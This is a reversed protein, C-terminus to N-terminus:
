YITITADLQNNKNNYWRHVTMCVDYREPLVYLVKSKLHRAFMYHLPINQVFSHWQSIFELIVQLFLQYDEFLSICLEQSFSCQIHM